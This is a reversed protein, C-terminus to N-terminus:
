GVRAPLLGYPATRLESEIEMLRNYKAIREGRAPAGSKIQGCGSGVALDVLRGPNRGLPPQDGCGVRPGPVAATSGPDRQGDWDPQTQDVRRQGISTRRRAPHTRRRHGLLDDGVIQVREGLMETLRAWGPQDDDAMGDELSWIPFRDVMAAYREVLESSSLQQEGLTYRGDVYFQSAAPDLALAVAGRSSKYGAAETAAVLHARVSGHQRDIRAHTTPLM